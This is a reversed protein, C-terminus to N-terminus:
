PSQSDLESNEPSITIKWGVEELKAFDRIFWTKRWVINGSPDIAKLLVVEGIIGERLVLIKRLQVTQGAPVTGLIAGGVRRGKFTGEHVITVDTPTQNEIILRAGKECATLMTSLMVM